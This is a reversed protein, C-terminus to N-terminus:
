QQITIAEEPSKVPLRRPQILWSSVSHQASITTIQPVMERDQTNAKVSSQQFHIYSAQPRYVSNSAQWLLLFSLTWVGMWRRGSQKCTDKSRRPSPGAGIPQSTLTVMTTKRQSSDIKIIITETSKSMNFYALEPASQLKAKLTECSKQHMSTWNWSSNEWPHQSPSRSYNLLLWEYWHHKM